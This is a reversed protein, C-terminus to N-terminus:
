AAPCVDTAETTGIVPGDHIRWIGDDGLRMDWAERGSVYADDVILDAGDPGAGPDVLKSGDAICVAVTAQQGDASLEVGEIVYRFQDRDIVTYGAANWEDVRAVNISLLPDGRTAALSAADCAPMAVLCDSFDRAAQDVAARVAQETENMVELTPPPDSSPSVSTSSTTSTTSVSGVVSPETVAASVQTITGTDPSADEGSSCAVLLLAVFGLTGAWRCADIARGAGM